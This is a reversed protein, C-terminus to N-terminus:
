SEFLDDFDPSDDSEESVNDADPKPLQIMLNYNATRLESITQDREAIASQMTEIETQLNATDLTLAETVETLESDHISRISEVFEPSFVFDESKAQEIFDIFTSM